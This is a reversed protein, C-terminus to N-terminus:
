GQSREQCTATLQSLAYAALICSRVEDKAQQLTYGYQKRMEQDLDSIGGISGVAEKAKRVAAVLQENSDNLIDTAKEISIDKGAIQYVPSGTKDFGKFQPTIDM